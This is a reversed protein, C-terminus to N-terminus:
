IRPFQKLIGKKDGEFLAYYIGANPMKKFLLFALFQKLHRCSHNSINKFKRQRRHPDESGPRRVSSGGSLGGDVSASIERRMRRFGSFSFFATLLPPCKTGHCRMCAARVLINGRMPVLPFQLFKGYSALQQILVWLFKMTALNIKFM